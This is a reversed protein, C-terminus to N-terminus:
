KQNIPSLTPLHVHSSFIRIVRLIINNIFHFLLNGLRPMFSDAIKNCISIVKRDGARGEVRRRLNKQVM